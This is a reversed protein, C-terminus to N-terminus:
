APGWSHDLTNAYFFKLMSYVGNVYSIFVKKDNILYLLLFDRLEDQDLNEAPRSFHTEFSRFNM